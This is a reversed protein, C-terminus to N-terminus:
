VRGSLVVAFFRLFGAAILRLAEFQEGNTETGIRNQLGVLAAM